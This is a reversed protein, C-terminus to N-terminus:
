AAVSIGYKYESDKLVSLDAFGVLAAGKEILLEKLEETLAM